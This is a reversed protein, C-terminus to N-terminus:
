RSQDYGYDSGGYYYDYSPYAYYYYGYGYSGYPYTYTYSYSPYSYSFGFGYPRWHERHERWERHHWGGRYRWDDDDAKAPAISTVGIVAIAASALTTAGLARWRPMSNGKEPRNM